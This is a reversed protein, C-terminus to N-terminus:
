RGTALSTLVLLLGAGGLSLGASFAMLLAADRAEHRVRRPADPVASRADHATSLRVTSSM